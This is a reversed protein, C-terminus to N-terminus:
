LLKLAHKTIRDKIMDPVTLYPWDLFFPCGDKWQNHKVFHRYEEIDKKNAPDFIKRNHKHREILNM